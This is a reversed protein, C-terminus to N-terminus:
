SGYNYIRVKLYMTADPKDLATLWIRQSSTEASYIIFGYKAFHQFDDDILLEILSNDTFSGTPLTVIAITKYPNTGSPESWSSTPVTVSIENGVIAKYLASNEVPNTSSSDLASDVTIPTPITPKDDLDNYSNSTAVAGLEDAEVYTSTNDSGDNILQSTRSPVSASITNGNISINTGAQLKEQLNVNDMEASHDDAIGIQILAADNDVSQVILRNHSSDKWWVETINYIEDTLIPAEVRVSGGNNYANRVDAISDAGSWVMNGGGDVGLTIVINPVTPINAVLGATIGSNLAALQAATLPTENVQYEPHWGAKGDVDWTGTYKFRWTGELTELTYDSADQVVLYDNVTPTKNGAYDVPYDTAVTPVDAWDNWNGRFNATATQVSSNVFNKDALQNSVSAQSPILDNIDDIDDRIDQHATPSTNHAAIASSIDGPTVGGTADLRGNTLTLNNGITQIDALHALKNKFENNFNNDTHVYNGDVVFQSNNILENTYVPVRINVTTDQSQNAKFSGVTSGNRNITLQGNNIAPKNSLDLYSGSVAVQALDSLKPYNTLDDVDKTIFGIDNQLESLKEPIFLNVDGSMGNVSNVGSAVSLKTYLGDSSYIYIAGNAEYVVLSNRYAGNKPPFKTDDGMAMPILVKRFLVERDGFCDVPGPCRKEFKKEKM